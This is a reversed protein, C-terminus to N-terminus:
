PIRIRLALDSTGSAQPLSHLISAENRGHLALGTYERRGVGRGVTTWKAHVAERLACAERSRPGSPRLCSSQRPSHSHVRRRCSRKVVARTHLHDSRRLAAFAEAVERKRTWVSTLKAGTVHRLGAAFRRASDGGGIVGWTVVGPMGAGIRRGNEPVNTNQLMRDSDTGM